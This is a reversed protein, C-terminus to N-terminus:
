DDVRSSGSEEDVYKKWKSKKKATSSRVSHKRTPRRGEEEPTGNMVDDNRNTADDDVEKQAIDYFVDDIEGTIEKPLTIMSELNANDMDENETDFGGKPTGIALTPQHVDSHIAFDIADRLLTFRSRNRPKACYFSKANSMTFILVESWKRGNAIEVQERLRAVLSSRTKNVLM